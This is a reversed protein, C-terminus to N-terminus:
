GAHTGTNCRRCCQHDHSHHWYSGDCSRSYGYEEQLKEDGTCGSHYGGSCHTWWLITDVMRLPESIGCVLSGIALGSKDSVPATVVPPLSETM